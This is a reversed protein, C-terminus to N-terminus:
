LTLIALLICYELINMFVFGVKEGFKKICYGSSTFIQVRNNNTDTVIYNGWEDVAVGSPRRFEGHDSGEIGLYKSNEFDPSIVILRHNNFDTVVASNDATFCVGRPSDFHKWSAGLIIYFSSQHHNNLQKM